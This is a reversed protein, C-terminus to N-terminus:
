YHEYHKTYETYTEQASLNYVTCMCKRSMSRRMPSLMFYYCCWHLVCQRLLTLIWYLTTVSSCQEWLDVAVEGPSRQELDLFVTYLPDAIPIEPCFVSIISCSSGGIIQSTAPVPPYWTESLPSLYTPKSLRDIRSSIIFLRFKVYM